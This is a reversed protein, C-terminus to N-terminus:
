RCDPPLTKDLEHCVSSLLFKFPRNSKSLLDFQSSNYGVSSHSKLCMYEQTQKPTLGYELSLGIIACRAISVDSTRNRPNLVDCEKLEACDCVISLIEKFIESKKM